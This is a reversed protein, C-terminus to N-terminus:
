QRGVAIDASDFSGFTPLLSIAASEFASGSSDTLVLKVATFSYGELSVTLVDQGAGAASDVIDFKVFFLSDITPPSGTQLNVGDWNWSTSGDSWCNSIAV